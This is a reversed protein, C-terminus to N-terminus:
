RHWQVVLGSGQPLVHMWSRCLLCLCVCQTHFYDQDVLRASLVVLVLLVVVKSLLIVASVCRSPRSRVFMAIHAILLGQQARDVSM